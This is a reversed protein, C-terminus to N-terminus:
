GDWFRLSLTKQLTILEDRHATVTILSQTQTNPTPNPKIELAVQEHRGAQKWYFVGALPSLLTFGLFLYSYQPILMSLVLSLCLLGVAALATLFCALFLSPRVFGDFRLQHPNPPTNTTDPNLPQYARGAFYKQLSELLAEQSRDSVLTVEQTRDKVSARIFFFLGIGLLLTLFFTSSIVTTDM